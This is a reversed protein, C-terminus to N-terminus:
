TMFFSVYLGPVLEVESMGACIFLKISAKCAKAAGVHCVPSSSARRLLQVVREM